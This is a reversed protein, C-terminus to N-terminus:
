NRAAAAGEPDYAEVDIELHMPEGGGLEKVGLM